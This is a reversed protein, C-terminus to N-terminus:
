RAEGRKFTFTVTVRGKGQEQLSIGDINFGKPIETQEVSTLLTNIVSSAWANTYATTSECVKMEERESRESM